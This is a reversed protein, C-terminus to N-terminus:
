LPVQCVYRCKKEPTIVMYDNRGDLYNGKIPTGGIAKLIPNIESLVPKIYGDDEPTKVRWEQNKYPILNKAYAKADSLPIASTEDEKAIVIQYHKGKYTYPVVIGVLCIGAKEEVKKKSCVYTKKNLLYLLEYAYEAGYQLSFFEDLSVLHNPNKGRSSEAGVTKPNPEQKRDEPTAVIGQSSSQPNPKPKNKSGKPRGRKKQPTETAGDETTTGEKTKRGRKKQTRAEEVQPKERTGDLTKVLNELLFPYKEIWKKTLILLEEPPLELAGIADLLATAFAFANM